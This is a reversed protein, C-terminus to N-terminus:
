NSNTRIEQEPYTTELIKDEETHEYSNQIYDNVRDDIINMLTHKICYSNVLQFFQPAISVITDHELELTSSDSVVTPTAKIVIEESAQQLISNTDSPKIEIELDIKDSVNDDSIKESEAITDIDSPIEEFVEETQKEERRRDAARM